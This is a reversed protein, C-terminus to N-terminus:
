HLVFSEAGEISWSTVRLTRPQGGQPMGAAMSRTGPTEASCNNLLTPAIEVAIM